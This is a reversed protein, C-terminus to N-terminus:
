DANPQTRHQVAQHRFAEYSFMKAGALPPGNRRCGQQADGQIGVGAAHNGNGFREQVFAQGDAGCQCEHHASDRGTERLEHHELLDHFKFQQYNEEQQQQGHKRRDSPNKVQYGKLLSSFNYHFCRNLYFRNSDNVRRKLLCLSGRDLRRFSFAALAPNFYIIFVDSPRLSKSPKSRMQSSNQHWRAPSTFICTLGYMSVSTRPRNEVRAGLRGFAM